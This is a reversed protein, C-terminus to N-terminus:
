SQVIMGRQDGPHGDNGVLLRGCSPRGTCFYASLTFSVAVTHTRAGLAITARFAAIEARKDSVASSMLIGSSLSAVTVSAEKATSFRGVIAAIPAFLTLGM